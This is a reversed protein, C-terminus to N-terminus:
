RSAPGARSFQPPPPRPHLYLHLLHVLPHVVVLSLAIVRAAGQVAQVHRAIASSVLQRGLGPWGFVEQTFVAGGLLYGLQLGAITLIPPWAVRLAHASIVVRESVGKARPVRIYELGLIELVSARTM